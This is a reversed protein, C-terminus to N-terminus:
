RKFKNIINYYEEPMLPQPNIYQKLKLVRKIDEITIIFIEHDWKRALLIFPIAQIVRIELPKLVIDKHKKSYNEITAEDYQNM